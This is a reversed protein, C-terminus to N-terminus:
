STSCRRWRPSRATSGSCCCSSASTALHDLLRAGGEPRQQFLAVWAGLLLTVLGRRRRALVVARTGSLVPWLRALLFVGLKVMTASHLYASVPTPAAMANPLWFHFPFQASKTFAGLLILCSRWAPLARHAKVQDRAPSSARRARLQRRDARARARGALLCLGGMGTVTLAMRAGRQADTRQTGTASSCSRSAPSTLEWFFALQLLNGSLVSASCRAWSRSCSPTSGRCPIRPRCTTARTCSRGARRHRPGARRVDLDARRAAARSRARAVAGLRHARRVVGGDRVEPFRVALGILGAVRPRAPLRRWAPARM